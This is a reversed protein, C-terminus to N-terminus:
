APRFDSEKIDLAPIKIHNPMKWYRNARRKKASADGLAALVTIANEVTTEPLRHCSDVIWRMRNRSEKAPMYQSAWRLRELADVSRQSPYGFGDSVSADTLGATRLAVLCGLLWGDLAAVKKAPPIRKARTEEPLLGLDFEDRIDALKEKKRKPPAEGLAAAHNLSNEVTILHPDLIHAETKTGWWDPEPITRLARGIEQIIAVRSGRKKRLCIWRLAPLDFGATLMDVHVIVRIKESYIDRVARALAGRESKSHVARAPIKNATLFRAYTEADEISNASVVGPGIEKAMMELCIRDIEHPDKEETSDGWFLPVFPVLVGDALAQKITYSYAVSDFMPLTEKANARFPTASLGWKCAPQMVEVPKMIQDASSGQCEDSIFMSVRAGSLRSALSGLSPNCTIIVPRSEQKVRGFFMGANRAGIRESVTKHTQIVLSETPVALIIKSKRELTKPLAMRIVEATYRSKGAGTCAVVVPARGRKLSEILAPLAEAQWKRPPFEAGIWPEM